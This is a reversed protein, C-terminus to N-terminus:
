SNANDTDLGAVIGTLPQEQVAGGLVPCSMFLVIVHYIGCWHLVPECPWQGETAHAAAPLPTGSSVGQMCTHVHVLSPLLCSM